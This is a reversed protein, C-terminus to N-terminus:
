YLWQRVQISFPVARDQKFYVPFNWERVAFFFFSRRLINICISMIHSTKASTLLNKSKKTNTSVTVSQRCNRLKKMNENGRINKKYNHKNM